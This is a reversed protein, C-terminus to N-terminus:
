TKSWPMAPQSSHGGMEHSSPECLTRALTHAHTSQMWYTCVGVVNYLLFFFQVIMITGNTPIYDTHHYKSDIYHYIIVYLYLYIYIRKRNMVFTNQQIHQVNRFLSILLLFHFPSFHSPPSDVLFSLHSILVTLLFSSLPPCHTDWTWTSSTGDSTGDADDISITPMRRAAFTAQKQSQPSADLDKVTISPSHDM